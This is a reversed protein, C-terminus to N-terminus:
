QKPANEKLIQNAKAVADDVLKKPDATPTPRPRRDRGGQRDPRPGPRLRRGAVRGDRVPVLRVDQRLLRGGRGVEPRGQLRRRRGGQREPPGAPLRHQDAWKTTQAKEGLYKIVLWAALEKEPTTKYVSVSAGYLNVAPKGNNPLLAIDWKFNGGKSVADQYFPLGSSSAFVFLVQGDAFRNQEGNRESTPIEVACKNKFLRQIM